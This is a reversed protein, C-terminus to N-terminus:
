DRELAVVTEFHMTQPFLDVMTLRSIRYGGALLPVLDRALTAANCAVITIRPPELRSLNRVVHKGLGARPPDCLVFDPRQTANDMYDEASARHTEVPLGATNVELDATPGAEVAVTKDFKAALAVTFLGVGAYLDFALAGGDAPTAAEVLRETLFRNVQFFSRHGVRFRGYQIAGALPLREGLWDFFWRAVPRDSATVNIQVESENTFVEITRVFRPWRRDRMM